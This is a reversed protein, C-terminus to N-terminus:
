GNWIKASAGMGYLGVGGLSRGKARGVPRDQVSNVGSWNPLARADHTLCKAMALKVSAIETLLGKIRKKESPNLTYGDGCKAIWPRLTGRLIRLTLMLTKIKKNNETIRPLLQKRDRKSAKM